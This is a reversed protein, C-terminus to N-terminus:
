AAGKTMLKRMLMMSGAQQAMGGAAKGAGTSYIYQKLISPTKYTVWIFGCFLLINVMAQSNFNLLAFFSCKVMFLQLAQALSLNLVERWWSQFAQSSTNTLGLAMFSGVAAAIAVEAARIFSQILVIILMVLAFLIAIAIAIPFTPDAIGAGMVDNLPGEMTELNVGPLAIVDAAIETGWSYIQRVIWPVSLIIAASQVGRVIVGSLDADANGDSRLINNYWIEFTFKAALVAGAIVQALAIGQVVVPLDLVNLSMSNIANLFVLFANIASSALNMLWDNIAEEILDGIPNFM